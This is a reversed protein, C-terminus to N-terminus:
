VKLHQPLQESYPLCREIMDETIEEKSSLLDLVYTLYKETNLKNMRFSIMLSFWISSMHAGHITDTFLFNKRATVFPKIGEREAINNSAPIRGDNMYYTLANWQNLTYQITISCVPKWKTCM